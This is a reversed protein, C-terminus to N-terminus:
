GRRSNLVKALQTAHIKLIGVSSGIFKGSVVKNPNDLLWRAIYTGMRVTAHSFGQGNWVETSQHNKETSTQFSYIAVVGQSLQIPNRKELEVYVLDKSWETTKDWADLCLEM